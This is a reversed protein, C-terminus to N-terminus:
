RLIKALSAEAGTTGFQIGLGYGLDLTKFFEKEFGLFLWGNYPYDMKSIEQTDHLAPTNIEQGLVWHKSIYKFNLITDSSKKLLRGFELFIGSSYYRDSGFYLDNEVNLGVYKQARLGISFFIVAIM